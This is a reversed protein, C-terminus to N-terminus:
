KRSKQVEKVIGECNSVSLEVAEKLPKGIEGFGNLIDVFLNHFKQRHKKPMSDEYVTKAFPRSRSNGELIVTSLGKFMGEKATIITAIFSETEVVSVKSGFLM